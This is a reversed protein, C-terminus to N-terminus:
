RAAARQAWRLVAARREASLVAGTPWQHSPTLVLADAEIRDLADVRVGDDGVPVGVVELGAARAVPM